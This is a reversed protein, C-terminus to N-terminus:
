QQLSALVSNASEKDIGNKALIKAIISPDNNSSTIETMDESPLILSLDSHTIPRGYIQKFAGAGASPSFTGSTEASQRFNLFSKNQENELNGISINEKGAAERRKFAIDAMKANETIGQTNADTSASLEQKYLDGLRGSLESRGQASAKLYANRLGELKSSKDMAAADAYRQNSIEAQKAFNAQIEPRSNRDITKSLYDLSEPSLMKGNNFQITSTSGNPTNISLKGKEDQSLSTDGSISGRNPGTAESVPKFAAPAQTIPTSPTTSVPTVDTSEPIGGKGFLVNRGVEILAKGSNTSETALEKASTAAGQAAAGFIGKNSINSATNSLTTGISQDLIGPDGGLIKVVNQAGTKIASPTNAGTGSADANGAITSKTGASAQSRQTSRGAPSPTPSTFNAGIKKLQEPSYAM